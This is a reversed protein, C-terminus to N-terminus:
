PIKITSRPHSKKVTKLVDRWGDAKAARLFGAHILPAGCLVEMNPNDKEFQEMEAITGTFSRERKTKKNIIRYTPM